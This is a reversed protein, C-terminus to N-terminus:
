ESGAGGDTGIMSQLIYTGICSSSALVEVFGFAYGILVHVM